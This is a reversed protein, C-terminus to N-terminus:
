AAAPAFSGELAFLFEIRRAWGHAQEYLEIPSKRFSTPGRGSIMHDGQPAQQGILQALFPTSGKGDWVAQGALAAVPEANPTFATEATPAAEAAQGGSIAAPAGEGRRVPAPAQSPEVAQHRQPRAAKAAPESGLAVVIPAATAFSPQLAPSIM